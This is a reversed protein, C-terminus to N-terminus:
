IKGFELAINLRTKPGCERYRIKTITIYMMVSLM